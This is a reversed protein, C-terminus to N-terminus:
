RGEPKRVLVNYVSRMEGMNDYIILFLLYIKNTTVDNNRLTGTFFNEIESLLM